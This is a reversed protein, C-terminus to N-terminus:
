SFLIEELPTAYLDGISKEYNAVFQNYLSRCQEIGKTKRISSLLYRFAEENFPDIDLITKSTLIVEAYNKDKYLSALNISLAETVQKEYKNKFRDLWEEYMDKLLTGRCILNFYRSDKKEGM